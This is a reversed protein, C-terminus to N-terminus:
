LAPEAASAVALPKRYFVSYPNAPYDAFPGCAVFGAREYVRRAAGFGAGTELALASLGDRRAQAEIAALIRGGVGVGQVTPRVYMRKVEGTGDAHRLLAGCGVAQGNSRAVFLTTLGDAMDEATMRFNFEEPTEPSQVDMADNLEAILARVDDQLPTEIAISIPM